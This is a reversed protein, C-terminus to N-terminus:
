GEIKEAVEIVKPRDLRAEEKQKKQNRIYVFSRLSLAVVGWFRFYLFLPHAGWSNIYFDM